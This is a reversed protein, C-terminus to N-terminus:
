PDLTGHGTGVTVRHDEAVVDAGVRLQVIAGRTQGGHERGAADPRAIAHRQEEVVPDLEDLRQEGTVMEARDGDRDVEAERGVLDVVDEGVRTRHRQDAIRRSGAAPPM